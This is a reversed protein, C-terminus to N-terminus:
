FSWGPTPKPLRLTWDLQELLERPGSLNDTVALGTPPRVGLWMRTFANVSARLTPLAPDTAPQAASSPGLTVVYGGAVGRWPADPELASAVPDTLSLNFRVPDGPLHTRELCGPLNCIRFQRWAGAEIRTEYKGKEGIEQRLFPREILDQLQIGQPEDMRVLRVQDGFGRLLAMLEVFQEPTQYAIWDINYPGSGVDEAGCWFHLTLEANPGDCYGLGFAKEGHVMASKTMEPPTLNCSGHGRMRNLRSQHVMNWDDATLRRPIRATVRVKLTGPDFGVWHEYPGTGFGLQDYYGQEFMGLGSVLAGEAADAAVALATLRKALGQKRAVRSTTVATVCSLPLDEDLYRITGPTTTVLCEAEGSVEAVLARSCEVHLDMSEERDKHLWGTERWIRRAGEKDREPNYPRFQM